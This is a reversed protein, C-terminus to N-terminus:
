DEPEIKILFPADGAGEGSDWLEQFHEDFRVSVIKGSIIEAKKDVFKHEPNNENFESICKDTYQINDYESTKVIGLDMGIFPLFEYERVVRGAEFTETKNWKIEILYKM